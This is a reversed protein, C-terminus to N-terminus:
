RLDHAQHNGGQLFDGCQLVTQFAASQVHLAFYDNRGPEGADTLTFSITAPAGNLTGTGTAQMTNFGAPPPAPSIAPNNTCVASTLATLHFHNGRGWNIQLNNPTPAPEGEPYACHLEFGHTVRFTADGYTCSISGGGTMRGPEHALAIPIVVSSLMVSAAILSNKRLAITRM